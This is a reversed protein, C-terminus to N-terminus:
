DANKFQKLPNLYFTKKWGQTTDDMLWFYPLLTIISYHLHPQKGAANGSDGVSGLTEGPSIFLGTNEEIADLHAFYHLRWKPGLILVVNGGQGINGSYIILGYGPNIVNTGKQAFIDVGKHVGSAGWPEYWWTNHNWDNNSAGKVPILRGAPLLLGTVIVLSIILLTKPATTLKKM